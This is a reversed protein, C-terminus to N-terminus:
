KCEEKIQMGDRGLRPTVGGTSAVLYQGGTLCDTRIILGSRKGNPNDTSDLPRPSVPLALAIVLLATALAMPLYQITTM